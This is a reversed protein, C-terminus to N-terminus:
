PEYYFRNDPLVGGVSAPDLRYLIDYLATLAARMNDGDLYAINCRPLAAKAVAANGIIGHKVLLSAAEDLKQPDTMYAISASYAECFQAIAEPHADCFAANAIMCGQVLPTDEVKDWEATLDIPVTLSTNGAAKAQTVTATVKPEPLLAIGVEGRAARTALEDLNPYDYSLTVQELLGNEELIHKLIYEPTQAPTAVYVTKGALDSLTHVTGTNDLLYLVGLTNVALVRVGGNTKKSLVAAANTPLAALDVTGAIVDSILNQPDTYIEEFLYLADAEEMMRAVGIGTTGSLVGIRLATGDRKESGCSLTAFLLALLMFVCLIRKMM